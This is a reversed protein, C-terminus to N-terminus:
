QNRLVIWYQKYITPWVYFEGKSRVILVVSDTRTGIRHQSSLKFILLLTEFPLCSPLCSLREMWKYVQLVEM